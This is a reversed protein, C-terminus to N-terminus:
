SRRGWREVEGGRRGDLFPAASFLPKNERALAGNRSRRSPLAAPGRIEVVHVVRLEFSDPRAAGGCLQPPPPPPPSTFSFVASPLLRLHLCYSHSLLSHAPLCLLGGGGLSCNEAPYGRHSGGGSADRSFEPERASPCVSPRISPRYGTGSLGFM